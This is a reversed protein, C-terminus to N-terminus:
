SYDEIGLAFVHMTKGTPRLTDREYYLGTKKAVHESAKNRPDILAIIRKLSLQGFAYDRLSTAAETAYGKGWASKVLVYTLDFETRGDVDKDVFGCHGIIQNTAKEIVPWLDIDPPPKIQADKLLEQLLEDYNRPGGIFQTVEADTWLRALSVADSEQMSRILLRETELKM